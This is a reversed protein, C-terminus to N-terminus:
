RMNYPLGATWASCKLRDDENLKMLSMDNCDDDEDARRAENAASSITPIKRELSIRVCIMM